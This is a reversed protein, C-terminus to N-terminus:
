LIAVILFLLSLIFSIPTMVHKELKSQSMFNGLTNICFFLLFIWVSITAVTPNNYTTLVKSKELMSLGAFLLVGISLFSAVRLKNPLRGQFKGGWSIEAIPLGLALLLQLVMMGIIITSALGGSIITVPMTPM